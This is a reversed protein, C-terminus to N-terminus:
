LEDLEDICEAGIKALAVKGKNTKIDNPMINQKKLKEIACKVFIEHEEETLQEEKNQQSMAEKFVKKFEAEKEPTWENKNTCSFLTISLLAISIYTKLKKM